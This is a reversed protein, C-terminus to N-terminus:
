LRVKIHPRHIVIYAVTTCKRGRYHWERQNDDSVGDLWRRNPTGRRVRGQVKMRMMRTGVYHKERRMANVDREQFTRSIEGMCKRRVMIRESRIRDLTTAVCMWRLMRM